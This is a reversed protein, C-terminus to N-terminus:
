FPIKGTTLLHAFKERFANLDTSRFVIPCGRSFLYLTALVTVGTDCEDIEHDNGGSVFLQSYSQVLVDNVPVGVFINEKLLDAKTFLLPFLAKAQTETKNFAASFVYSIKKEDKQCIYLCWQTGILEAWCLAHYPQQFRADEASYTLACTFLIPIFPTVDEEERHVQQHHLAMDSERKQFMSLVFIMLRTSIANGANLERFVELPLQLGDVIAIQKSRMLGSHFPEQLLTRVYIRQAAVINRFFLTATASDGDKVRKILSPKTGAVAPHRGSADVRRKLQSKLKAITFNADSYYEAATLADAFYKIDARLLNDGSSYMRPDPPQLSFDTRVSPMAMAFLEPWPFESNTVKPASSLDSTWNPSMAFTGVKFLNLLPYRVRILRSALFEAYESPSESPIRYNDQWNLWWARAPDDVQFRCVNVCTILMTLKCAQLHIHQNYWYKTQIENLTKNVQDRSQEPFPALPADEINRLVPFNRLLHFGEIGPRQPDMGIGDAAPYWKCVVTCPELGTLQGIITVCNEKAQKQIEVVQDSCCFRYTVQLSIDIVLM